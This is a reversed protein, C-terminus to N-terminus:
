QELVLEVGSLVPGLVSPPSKQLRVELQPNLLINKFEKAVGRNAAGATKLVDFGTLVPRGQLLVDFVRRGPEILDPEMFYLRVTYRAPALPAPGAVSTGSQEGLNPKSNNDDADDDKSAPAAPPVSKQTQPVIVVSEIDRLGSAVVWAPGDGSVASSHRCFVNTGPATITVALRPSPGTTAPYELWLTGDPALRDGPAGLNIGVRAIRQGAPTDLGALNCTWMEAEPMPVLALSTQNQYSCSCTRTYDPANLVGNAIILNASCGSKFGGLNGTGSHSQLDYFGAAGSRFTMVHESAVPTNCGYARHVRWPQTQGTLPNTITHPRGDLLSYAGASPKDSAPTTIILDHHLICPGTYKLKADRWVETGDKARLVAMGERAEDKWRDSASAGAQLLLDREKSYSLWTGFVGRTNEWLRGGTRLDFAVVRYSAAADKGARRAKLEASKPLRDLCYVRGGGAVVGNHLFSHRADTRWLPAGTRRDFAALGASAAFDGIGALFDPGTFSFRKNFWAFGTGGLLVDGCVGIYGWEKAAPMEIRRVVAGSAADLVVCQNGVAVYVSDQTAVFNAGRANAGAMHRQSPLTTLPDALLTDDYYIGRTNLGPVTTKWLRRGTYVDRASLGDMGELFLRGGVVQESPGHGHRPLVDDHTNGGFWLLGLPLRVTQDDSKVTNAVDGYQHTWDGAGPLAGERVVRVANAAVEVKAKPLGASTIKAALGAADTAGAIWLSGGYPRLSEYVKRLTAADGLRAAFAGGAVILSAVYPPAGFAAPEAALLAVRKGYLGAADLQRRLRGVKDADADVGIIHLQSAAALAAILEGDGLGLCLAYGERAGTREIIARAQELAAPSTKETVCVNREADARAPASLFTQAVDGFALIRGELTVAFLMGNAALLRRVTGQVPQSWVIAPQGGPKPLAIAAVANSGAAYLRGGARIIDGSGDAKIEWRCSKDARWAQVVKFPPGASAGQRARALAGEAKQVQKVAKELAATASQVLNTDAAERADALVGRAKAENYREQELKKGADVRATFNTSCDAACYYHSKGLVPEDIALNSKKGTALDHARVGRQRTHVFFEKENAMVVSGGVGKGAEAIPFYLLRGTARDFAAPISRGGPVLLMKETAVLAGQPAVGAFSPANHPQKIFQAGTGDNVWVPKGTAADLAYTFTGMFPWISAAFYVVGDRIVPGGRAPWASILRGNGLAKRESPGGRFKWVLAGDQARLCYLHGDDSAFYVHGQWAAPALRVPGEAYFRWVEGGSRIDLAVLKDSDNFGVFMKDGLVVPEFVTDFPMLDQNLPDEWAPVRPSFERTWRLTMQAPLKEPSDATRNADCRWMPWDAAGTPALGGTLMLAAILLPPLFRRSHLLPRPGRIECTQYGGVYSNWWSPTPADQGRVRSASM